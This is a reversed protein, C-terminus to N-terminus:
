HGIICCNDGVLSIHGVGYEMSEIINDNKCQLGFKLQILPLWDRDVVALISFIDYWQM